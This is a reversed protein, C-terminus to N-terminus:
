RGRAAAGLLTELVGPRYGDGVYDEAPPQEAASRHHAIVREIVDDDDPRLYLETTSLHAHGLVWQVDTLSVSPDKIM